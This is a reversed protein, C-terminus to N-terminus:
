REYNAAQPSDLCYDCLWVLGGELIRGTQAAMHLAGRETPEDVRAGCITCTIVFHKITETEQKIFDSM